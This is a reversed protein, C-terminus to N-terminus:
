LGHYPNPIGYQAYVAKLQQWSMTQPVGDPGIVLFAHPDTLEDAGPNRGPRVNVDDLAGLDGKMYRDQNGHQNISM